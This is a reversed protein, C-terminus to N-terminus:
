PAFDRARIGLHKLKVHLTKYDTKLARAAQSKNGRTARLTECIAQREATEAAEVAIERL